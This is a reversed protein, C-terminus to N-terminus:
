IPIKMAAGSVCLGPVYWVDPLVVKETNVSGKGCVKMGKGEGAEVVQNIVPVLNSILSRDGTMHNNAYSALIFWASEGSNEPRDSSTGKSAARPDSGSSSIVAILSLLDPSM